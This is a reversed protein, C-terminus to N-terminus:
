GRLCKSKAAHRTDVRMPLAAKVRLVTYWTEWAACRPDPMSPDLTSPRPWVTPLAAQHGGGRAVHQGEKDTGGAMRWQWWKRAEARGNRAVGDRSWGDIPLERRNEPAAGATTAWRATMGASRTSVFARGADELSAEDAESRERLRDSDADGFRGGTDGM